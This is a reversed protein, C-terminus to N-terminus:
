SVPAYEIVACNSIPPLAGANFAYGAARQRQAKGPKAPLAGANSVFGITSKM